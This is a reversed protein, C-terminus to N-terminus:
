LTDIIQPGDLVEYRIVQVKDLKFSYGQFPQCIKESVLKLKGADSGAKAKECYPDYRKNVKKKAEEGADFFEKTM